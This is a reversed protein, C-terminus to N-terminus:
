RFFSCSNPYGDEIYLTSDENDTNNCKSSKILDIKDRINM